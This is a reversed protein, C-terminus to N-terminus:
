KVPYTAESYELDLNQQNNLTSLMALSQIDHRFKLCQGASVRALGSNPEALGPCM